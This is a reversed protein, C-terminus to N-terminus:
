KANKGPKKKAATAQFSWDILNKVMEDDDSKTLWISIWKDKNMHYAPFFGSQMRLSGILVPDCKVNLIDIEDEFLVGIKKANVTMVLGYWKNNDSHRLVANDDKWPYDPDTKYQKRCYDFVEQKTM